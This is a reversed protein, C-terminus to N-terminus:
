SARFLSVAKDEIAAARDWSFEAALEAAERSLRAFLADNRLISVANQALGDTDGVAAELRGSPFIEAFIPLAYTV